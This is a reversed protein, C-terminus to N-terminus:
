GEKVEPPGVRGAGLVRPPTEDVAVLRHELITAPSAYSWAEPIASRVVDPQFNYFTAIVVEAPVPGMPAARGAFYGMRGKPLGAAAYGAAPEPTLFIISAYPNAQRAIERAILPEMLRVSPSAPDAAGAPIGMSAPIRDVTSPQESRRGATPM